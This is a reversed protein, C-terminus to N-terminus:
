KYLMKEGMMYLIMEEATGKDSEGKKRYYFGQM